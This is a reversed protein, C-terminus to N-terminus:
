LPSTDSVDFMLLSSIYLFFIVFIEFIYQYLFYWAVDGSEKLTIYNFKRRIMWEKKM